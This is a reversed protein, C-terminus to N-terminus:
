AVKGIYLDSFLDLIDYLSMIQTTGTGWPNTVKYLTEGTEALFPQMSYAHNAAIQRAGDILNTDSLGSPTAIGFVYNGWEEPNTLIQLKRGINSRATNEIGFM